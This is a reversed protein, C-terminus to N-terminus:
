DEGAKEGSRQTVSSDESKGVPETGIVYEDVEGPRESLATPETGITVIDDSEGVPETGIPDSPAEPADEEPEADAREKEENVVL